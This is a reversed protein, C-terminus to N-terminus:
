GGYHRFSCRGCNEAQCPFRNKIVRKLLIRLMEEAVEFDAIVGERLPRITIIEGPTRGVMEKAEAGVALVRRTKTEVAVISPEDIIIGENDVYVLINATGLDIGIDCSMLSNFFGM